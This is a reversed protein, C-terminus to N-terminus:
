AWSTSVAPPDILTQMVVCYRETKRQLAALEVRAADLEHRLQERLKLHLQDPITKAILQQRGAKHQAWYQSWAM